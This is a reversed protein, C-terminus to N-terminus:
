FTAYREDKIKKIAEGLLFTEEYTFNDMRAINCEKCSPVCNEKIHGILNDIRDFGTSPYGCYTCPKKFVEFVDEQTLNFERNKRKDEKKYANILGIAKGKSTFRYKVGLQYHKEKQEITLNEYKKIKRNERLKSCVKCKYEFGLPRNRNRHFNTACLEKVENCKFCKRQIDTNIEKKNM